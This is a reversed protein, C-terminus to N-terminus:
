LQSVIGHAVKGVFSTPALQETQKLRDIATKKNGKKYLCLAQVLQALQNRPISDLIQQATQYAQEYQQDEYLWLAKTALFEQNEPLLLLATELHELAEQTKGLGHLSRASVLWFAANENDETLAQTIHIFSNEYNRQRLFTQAYRARHLPSANPSVAFFRDYFERAKSDFGTLYYNYALGSLAQLNNGDEKLAREYLQQSRDLLETRQYLDAAAILLPVNRPHFELAELYVELAKDLNGLKEYSNGILRYAREERRRVNHTKYVYTTLAEIAQQYNGQSYAERAQLYAKKDGVPAFGLFGNQFSSCGGTIFSLALVTILKNKWYM